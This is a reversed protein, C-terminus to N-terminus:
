FEFIKKANDCFVKKHYEIPIIWKIVKIYDDMRVIPWDSGYILKDYGTWRAVGLVSNKVDEKETYNSGEFLGSLDAYVNDNKYLVAKATEMWPNGLHAMVFKVNPFLIAADDIHIPNAYKMLANKKFTIGSHIIVPLDYKEALKYVPSYVKDQPYFYFYGPFIKFAKFVKQKINEEVLKLIKKNIKLPNITCVGLINKNRKYVPIINESDVPTPDKSKPSENGPASIGVVYEVDNNRMEKLLGNESYDISLQKAIRILESAGFSVHLHSDIIKM